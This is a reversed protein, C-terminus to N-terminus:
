DRATLTEVPKVNPEAGIAPMRPRPDRDMVFAGKQCINM